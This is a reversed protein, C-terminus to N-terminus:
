KKPTAKAQAKKAVIEKEKMEETKKNHRVTEKQAAKKINYDKNIKDAQLKISELSSADSSDNDGDFYRSDENDQRMSEVTVKTELERELRADERDWEERQFERGKEEAEAQAAIMQQQMEQQREENAQDRQLKENESRTLKKRISSVSETSFIDILQTYNLIGNQIGAHALQKMSQMLEHSGSGDTILLGYDAENFDQGDLNMVISAGDDLVYQVKKNKADKWAYKATQLLCELVRIKVQDHEMFWYETIHSSQAVEREVNGVAERTSIQGQRAASVGAIEGLEQKIYSMMNMYLQISNGMEMDIIPSQANMAGALKGQANGKNGEKFADYVAINMGDAMSLWKDIEWGEPIEHLGLRMIKGKNKAIMLETNYALVNYLYQYPKMRDMLSVGQNDNTNYITGVIGPHCKSPNEMSRFQVPKPRMRTYIANVDDNDGVGGGIKHGEWWESVWLITEEEGKSEDIKFNEDRFAYDYEGDETIYKVKKIKRMSKWYAKVVRINGAGDFTSGYNTDNELHALNITDEVRLALDPKRGIDIASEGSSNGVLDNEIMTIDAPKLEDHYEDIIQGPSMYGSITIIDADDLKNSEGSRVTHVNLVNLKKVLPEGAVIDILYAEEASILADKFGKAFLVDLRLHKYLYTLIQTATRERISQYDFDVYNQFKKMKEAMEEESSSDSKIDETIIQILKGKLDEEKESIADANAVRVKFDFRRKISEGVLLDIKPNCIPYNQMKAPSSLGGLNHPNCTREIDAQDLIDSYLDFNVRKNYYSQRLSDSGWIALAEAGNVCEKRWAMNKSATSKKQSPFQINTGNNVM